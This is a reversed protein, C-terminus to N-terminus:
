HEFVAASSVFEIDMAEMEAMAAKETEPSISRCAALNVIVHMGAKALQVATLKVCYDLALGGVIVTKIGKGKLFEIVGTSMTDNLDHYCAGYPHMDPEIGKYAIFDYETKAPLGAIFEFGYTGPVCHAKWHIDVNKGEVPSFQPHEENAIWIANAPHADKSAVRISAALAQKNLEGVINHGDPVPLEDPCLPTFGNQPDVDFSATTGKNLNIKKDRIYMQAGGNLTQM